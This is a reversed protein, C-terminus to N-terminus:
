SKLIHKTEMNIAKELHETSKQSSKTKNNFLLKKINKQHHNIYITPKIQWYLFNM